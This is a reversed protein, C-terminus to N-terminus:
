WYVHENNLCQLQKIYDSGIMEWSTGYDLHVLCM